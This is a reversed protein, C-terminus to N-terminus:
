VNSYENFYNNSLSIQVQWSSKNSLIMSNVIMSMMNLTNDFINNMIFWKSIMSVLVSHISKILREEKSWLSNSVTSMSICSETNNMLISATATPSQIGHNLIDDSKPVISIIICHVILTSSISNVALTAMAVLASKAKLETTHSRILLHLITLEDEMSLSQM